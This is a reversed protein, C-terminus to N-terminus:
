YEDYLKLPKYTKFRVYGAEYATDQFIVRENGVEDLESVTLGDSAVVRAFERLSDGSVRLFVTSSGGYVLFADICNLEENYLMNPYSESNKMEILRDTTKDYIFLRRVENAGRVAVSSVITMDNLRDNNFDSLKTDCSTIGDKLIHITQNLVWEDSKRTYFHIDVYTSDSSRYRFVEVKNRSRRGVNVSDVFFEELQPTVSSLVEMPKEQSTESGTKANKDHHDQCSLLLLAILGIHIKMTQHIM